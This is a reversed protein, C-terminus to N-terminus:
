TGGLPEYTNKKLVTITLSQILTVLCIKPRSNWIICKATLKQSLGKYLKCKLDLLFFTTIHFNAYWWSIRKTAVVNNAGGTDM